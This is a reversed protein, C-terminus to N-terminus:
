EKNLLFTELITVSKQEESGDAVLTFEEGKKIASAMVGMISKAVIFRGNKLVITIDSEFNSAKQVFHTAAKAQLGNQLQVIVKKEIM